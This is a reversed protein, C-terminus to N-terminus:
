SWSYPFVPRSPEIGISKDPCGDRMGPAGTERIWVPSRDHGIYIAEYHGDGSGVPLGVALHGLHSGANELFISSGRMFGSGLVM